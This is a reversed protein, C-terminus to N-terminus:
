GDVVIDMDQTSRYINTYDYDFRDPQFRLDGEERMLDWHVYHGFGAATGGFLWARVGLKEAEQKLFRLEEVRSVREGIARQLELTSAAVALNALCLAVLVFWGNLRQCMRDRYRDQSM